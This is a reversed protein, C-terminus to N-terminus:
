EAARWRELADHSKKGRSAAPGEPAALGAVLGPPARPAATQRRACARAAVRLEFRHLHDRASDHCRDIRRLRRSRLLLLLLPM